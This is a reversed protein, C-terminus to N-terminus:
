VSGPTVDADPIAEEGMNMPDVRWDVDIDIGFMERTEKCGKKLQELWLAANNYTETDNASVEASITREKKDTALNAPIGIRNCFMCELKRLAELGEPAIYNKGVDQLFLQWSPSGDDLLLDKDVFVAPNGAVLQDYMKKLSEAAAKNRSGFVYSLRTNLTNISFMESTLAMAEAFDNVLDLIGGYDPCLRIVTCETGIRPTLLGQLLPNSITAHTPQYQAGYGYLGCHQPIVGFADTNIVAVFGNCYLVYLFYNKEWTEPLKWDFVSIARQLLYRQYYRVCVTNQSHVTGPSIMSAHANQFDYFVPLEM